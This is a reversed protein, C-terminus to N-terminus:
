ANMGFNEMSHNVSVTKGLAAQRLSSQVREKAESGNRCAEPLSNQVTTAGYYCPRGRELIVRALAEQVDVSKQSRKVSITLGNERLNM